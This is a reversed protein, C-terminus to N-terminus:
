QDSPGFIITAERGLEGGTVADLDNGDLEGTRLPPLVVYHRTPTSEVVDIEVDDRVDIGHAQLTGKPDRKLEARFAEDTLLKRSLEEETM